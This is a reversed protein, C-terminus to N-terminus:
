LRFLVGLSWVDIDAEGIGHEKGVDNFRQFDLRVTWHAGFDFQTGAGFLIPDSGYTTARTVSNSWHSVKQDAWLIGGRLYLEWREGVPMIALVSASPGKTELKSSVPPIITVSTYIAGQYESLTGLDAYSAEFAAYRFIRYGVFGGWAWDEDEEGPIWFADVPVIYPVAIAGSAGPTTPFPFRFGPDFPNFPYLPPNLSAVPTGAAWGAPPLLTTSTPGEYAFDYKAQGANLGFYFGHEGAMSAQAGLSMTVLAVTRMFRM